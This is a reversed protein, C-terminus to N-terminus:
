RPVDATALCADVRLELADGAARVFPALRAEVEARVSGDGLLSLPGPATTLAAWLAGEDDFRLRLALERVEFRPFGELALQLGEYSGWREARARAHDVDRLRRAIRLLAGISGASAWTLLALRGGPCLVRELERGAARMDPAHVVGFASAVRDFSGDPFPLPHAQVDAVVLEAGREAAVPALLGGSAAVELV